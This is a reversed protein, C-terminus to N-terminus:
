RARIRAHWDEMTFTILCGRCAAILETPVQADIAPIGTHRDRELLDLPSGCTPCRFQAMAIQEHDRAPSQDRASFEEGGPGEM